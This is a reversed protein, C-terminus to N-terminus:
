RRRIWALPDVPEGKHRIEFHISPGLLSGSEGTYGLVEGVEVRDGASKTLRGAHAIISYYDDGHDIILLQGYGKFWGAYVVSGSFIARIEQDPTVKIDIGENVITSEYRSDRQKGFARVVQGEVPWPLIGKQRIFSGGRAAPGPTRVPPAKVREPRSKEKEKEKEKELILKELEKSSAELESLLREYLVRENEISFLMQAKKQREQALADLRKGLKKEVAKEEEMSAALAKEMRVREQLREHFAELKEMDRQVLIKLFYMNRLRIPFPDTSFVMPLLGFRTTKHLAVLRVAFGKKQEDIWRQTAAIEERQMKQQEQIKEMEAQAESLRQQHYAIGKDLRELEELVSKKQIKIRRIEQQKEEIQKRVNKLKEQEQGSGYVSYLCVSGAVLITLWGVCGPRRGSKM